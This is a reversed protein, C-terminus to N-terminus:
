FTGRLGAAGPALVPTVHLGASTHSKPRTVIGYVAIGAGLLAVGFGVNAVNALTISADIDSQAEPTCHDDSGCHKKADSSRSLSLLGFVSGVALGAAGVGVGWRFFATSRDTADDNSPVLVLSAPTTETPAPAAAVAAPADPDVVLTIDVSQSDSEKLDVNVTATKYTALKAVVAHKGPNLKRPLLLSSPPIETGDITVLPLSGPPPGKVAVSVTPIRDTLRAGLQTAEIRAAEYTAPEGARAPMRQVRLYGDSAQILLGLAEQTRAVEIAITPVEGLAAAGEYAKLAGTLDKGAVLRDGEAKLAAATPPADARAGGAVTITAASMALPAAIRLLL